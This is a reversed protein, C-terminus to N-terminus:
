RSYLSRNGITSTVVGDLGRFSGGSSRVYDSVNTRSSLISYQTYQRNGGGTTYTWVPKGGKHPLQPLASAIRAKETGPPMGNHYTRTIERAQVSAAALLFLCFVIFRM